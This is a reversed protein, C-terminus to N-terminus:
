PALLVRPFKSCQVAIPPDVAFKQSRTAMGPSRRPSLITCHIFSFFPDKMKMNELFHMRLWM